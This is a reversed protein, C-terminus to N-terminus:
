AIATRKAPADSGSTTGLLEVSAAVAPVVLRAETGGGEVSRLDLRGDAGHLRELRSRINALGTGADRIIDFGPPLGVGDDRVWLHLASQEVAAGIELRCRRSQVGLGHRLANEVLPQLAFTPVQLGVTSPEVRYDVQLRDGFRALQLDVYRKTFDLEAGLTCLQEGSRDLTSRMLESLGVLMELARDTAQLRVLAGIANLTNFLFHPQIELRLADLQARALEAELRSERVELRRAARSVTLTWGILVLAVYVLLDVPLVSLQRTFAEVFGSEINPEYPQFLLAMWASFVLHAAILAVGFLVVQKWIAGSRDRQVALQGGKRLALPAALAWLSWISLQWALTAQYSHGHGLMSLYTQTSIAGSLVIAGALGSLIIVRARPLEPAPHPRPRSSIVTTTDM